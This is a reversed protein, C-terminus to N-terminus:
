EKNLYSTIAKAARQSATSGEESYYNEATIQEQVPRFIAFRAQANQLAEQLGSLTEVVDGCKWFRYHIDKEFSVRKSNIFIVPRPQILFEYVQSSVDGLYIDAKKVYTMNVSEQSGLDMFIHDCEKYKQPISAADEGGKLPDFLHLHPAFILNYQTQHYFFDLIQLGMENWSSFEPDFHPNYLVVPKNDKFYAVEKVPPVADLKTYGVMMPHPGLLDLEQLQRYHFDGLVLQADFTKLKENHWYGRGPTGHPFKIIKPSNNDKRAALLYKQFYDTLIVADFNQIIYKRNRKLWFGKRPLKRKKLTDTVARFLQTPLQKVMVKDGGLRQLTDYLFQHSDPYTLIYVKHNESLAVAVSIFHYLHHIEDLYIFAITHSSNNKM